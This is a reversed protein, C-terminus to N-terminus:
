SPLLVGMTGVTKAGPNVCSRSGLADGYGETVGSKM